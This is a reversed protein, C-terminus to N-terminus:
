GALSPGITREYDANDVPTPCATYSPSCTLLRQEGDHSRGRPAIRVTNSEVDGAIFYVELGRGTRRQWSFTGQSDVVRSSGDAFDAAGDLKVKAQVTAGALGTTVGQIRVERDNGARSGTIV